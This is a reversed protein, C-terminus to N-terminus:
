KLYVIKSSVQQGRDTTLQVFYLGTSITPQNWLLTYSGPQIHKNDIFRVIERGSMDYVNIKVVSEEPISYAITTQGNFPNPYNKIQFLSPMLNKDPNIALTTDIDQFLIERKTEYVFPFFQNWPNSSRLQYYRAGSESVGWIDGEKDFSLDEAGSPFEFTKEPEAVFSASLNRKNFRHLKSNNSGGSSISVFLYTESGYNSWACGQTQLPLRYYKPNGSLSGDPNMLYGRLYPNDEGEERFDGVWLTDNFYTTFSTPGSVDWLGPSLPYLDQYKLTGDGVYVPVAYGEIYGSGAIYITGNKYAIGGNHSYQLQGRLHFCRRVQYSNGPDLEVIISRKYGIKGAIDKNYLSIYIMGVPGAFDPDEWSNTLGQPVFDDHSYPVFVLDNVPTPSNTYTKWHDDDWYYPIGAYQSGDFPIHAIREYKSVVNMLTAAHIEGQFPKNLSDRDCRGGLQFPSRLIVFGTGSVLYDKSEAILHGNIKITQYLTDGSVESFWRIYHYNVTDLTIITEVTYLSDLMNRELQLSLDGNLIMRLYNNASTDGWAWLLGEGRYPKVWLEGSITHNGIYSMSINSATQILSSDTTFAATKPITYGWGSEQRAPEEGPESIDIIDVANYIIGDVSDMGTYYSFLPTAELSYVTFISCFLVTFLREFEIKKVM